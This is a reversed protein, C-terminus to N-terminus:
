SFFNKSIWIWNLSNHSKIRFGLKLCRSANLAGVIQKKSQAVVKLGAPRLAEYLQEGSFVFSFNEEVKRITSKLQRSGARVWPTREASNWPQGKRKTDAQYGSHWISVLCQLVTKNKCDPREYFLWFIELKNRRWSCSNVRCVPDNPDTRLLYDSNSRSSTFSVM